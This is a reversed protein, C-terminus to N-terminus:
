SLRWPLLRSMVVTGRRKRNSDAVVVDLEGAVWQDRQGGDVLVSGFGAACRNAKEQFPDAAARAGLM